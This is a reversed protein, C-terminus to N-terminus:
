DKLFGKIKSSESFTSLMPMGLSLKKLDRLYYISAGFALGLQLTPLNSTGPSSLYFEQM